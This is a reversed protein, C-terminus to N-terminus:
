SGLREHWKLWEEWKNDDLKRVLRLEIFQAITEDLKFQRTKVLKKGSLKTPAEVLFLDQKEKQSERDRPTPGHFRLLASHIRSVNQSGDRDLKGVVLMASMKRHRLVGSYLTRLQGMAPTSTLGKFSTEPSVLVYAKVDFGNRYRVDGGVSFRPNQDRSWDQVAYNLGFLGGVGVGVVCLTNINVSGENNKKKLFGKVAEIDRKFMRLDNTKMEERDIEQKSGNLLTREISDGHGRLDPIIVAHGLSQLSEALGVYERRNDGWGHLIIIPVTEKDDRGPLWHCFISVGDRTQLEITNDEPDDQGAARSAFCSVGLLTAFTMSLLLPLKLM